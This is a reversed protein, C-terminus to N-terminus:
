LDMEGGMGHMAEGPAQKEMHERHEKERDEELGKMHKAHEAELHQHAKEEIEADKASRSRTLGALAHRFSVFSLSRFPRDTLL